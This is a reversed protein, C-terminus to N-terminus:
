TWGTTLNRIRQWGLQILFVAAIVILCGCVVVACHEAFRVANARYAANVLPVGLTILVYWFMPILGAWMWQFYIAVPYNKPVDDKQKGSVARGVTHVVKKIIMYFLCLFFFYIVIGELRHVRQPTIWGWYIDANYMYISLIIRLTNVVLTLLYASIAGTALWVLKIRWREIRHIGSFVATCFAIILFNVGACSPAIIVRYEHNVFGTHAENEFRIGSLHEVLGSTPALIWTLEDSGARSYHYKLGIAIVLVVLYFIGNQLVFHKRTHAKSPLM